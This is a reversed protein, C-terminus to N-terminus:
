LTPLFDVVVSGGVFERLISDEPVLTPEWPLFWDLFALLRRAEVYEPCGPEVQRLLPEALPKLVALEYALASNFMADAHEQYPFIHREEGRRVSDWRAITDHAGYGRDRADRVIRRVLRTDTTPIRNLSDLKLQTLASVYIRYISEAPVLPLLAPNLGHIGEVLLIHDPALQVAPGTERQGREFSYRPMTVTEGALLAVFQRNLLELDLAELAEFDYGGKEDRPTHQRDVFYDDLSIPFPRLGHALLQVTLRRAFTTKGSSSPGAMLVLRTHGRRRAIDAAIEAMRQEHLAEAVLIIERARGASLAQNLAEVDPVGLLKLWQGYEQFVATLKPYHRVQGLAAAQGRPPFQLVFGPPYPRLAFHALYGTSPVLPGYFRERAQGLMRTTVTSQGPGAVTERGIPLDQAVLARMRLEIETLERITFPRYGQVRCFFGGFTLSHDVTIGAQPFLEQVAAVLLLILSNQYIRRGAEQALTIPQVDGDTLVPESLEALRGDVLAAVAPFEQPTHAAQVFAALPTGVAGRLIRGDPFTLQVDTRPSGPQIDFGM